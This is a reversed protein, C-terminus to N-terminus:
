LSLLRAEETVRERLRSGEKIKQLRELSFVDEFLLDELCRVRSIAVFSLGAAFEKKGIDLVAKPLTLGQSKHVTIAWALRLPLQTRSCQGSKGEWSYRVPAIPVVRQGEPTNYTPGQYQDMEVMVLVPLSPPMTGEEYLIDRVTGMAGNVLGCSTWINSTLMVRAGLILFLEPELGRAEDSDAKNAGQGSNIAKIRAIPQARELLKRFNYGDVKDWTPFLRTANTFPDQEPSVNNPTRFRTRLLNWDEQTSEGNRMRLLLDRFSRQGESNGAQRQIVDLKFVKRFLGYIARGDDSVPDSPRPTRVYMPIDLVPPLQGFDGVLIVSRGGFPEDHHRPFAQRLRIDILALTRRGVMSKEDVIVYRVGDLKAQLTKIKEHSLDVAKSGLPLLLASHITRGDINFAAVGTPALVVVPSQNVAHERALYQLSQRVAKILYSKGTGATGMIIIRLPEQLADGSDLANTYHDAILSVIANQTTNLTSLDIHVQSDLDNGGNRSAAQNRVFDTAERLDIHPYRQLAASWNYQRDIDRRGLDSVFDFGPQPGMEALRMWDVRLEDNDEEEVVEEDDDDNDDENIEADVPSGLLDDPAADIINRHHEYVEPWNVAGDTNAPQWIVHERHPVHLLVKMRCYSEWDQGYRVPSPRPWVQIIVNHKLRFRWGTRTRQHTLHLQFLSHDELDVPRNWYLQLHSLGTSRATNDAVNTDVQVGDGIKRLAGDANLNLSVFTRSSHYMPIELLLHCTEQASIDREAVTHLLLKQFSKLSANPEEPNIAKLAANLVDSFAASRPESKSAYKAVYQIAAHISLIPKKDVNARWGQLQLRDHMNILQDNRAPILEPRGHNDEQIVTRDRLDVPFGFRCSLNGITHSCSLAM